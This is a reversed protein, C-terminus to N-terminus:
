VVSCKANDYSKRFRDVEHILTPKTIKQVKHTPKNTYTLFHILIQDALHGSLDRRGVKNDPQHLRCM